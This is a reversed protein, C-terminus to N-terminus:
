STFASVIQDPNHTRIYGPEGFKRWSHALTHPWHENEHCHHILLPKGLGILENMHEIVLNCKQKMIKKSELPHHIGLNPDIITNYFGSEKMLATKGKFFKEMNEFTYAVPNQSRMTVPNGYPMYTMVLFANKQALKYLLAQPYEGSTYNIMEVGADLCAIATSHSWTDVSIKYGRNKLLKIAPLLKSLEEEDSVGAIAQSTSRAGIDIFSVGNSVLFSARTLIEENTKAISHRVPSEESINLVGMLVPLKM